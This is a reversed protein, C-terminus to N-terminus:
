KSMWRITLWWNGPIRQFFPTVRDGDADTLHDDASGRRDGDLGHGLRVRPVDFRGELLDVLEFVGAALDDAGRDGVPLRGLGQLRDDLARRQRDDGVDVVVVGQGQGRDLRADGAEAEVRAVDDVPLLDHLDDGGGLLPVDGEPDADVGARERLLDVLREAFRVRDVAVVPLAGGIPHDLDGEPVALDQLVEVVAGAVDLEAQLGGVNEGVDEGVALERLYPGVRDVEADGLRARDLRARDPARDPEADQEALADAVGDPDRKRGVVRGLLHADGVLHQLREAEAVLGRGQDGARGAPAQLVVHDRHDLGDLRVDRVELDRDRDRDHAAP